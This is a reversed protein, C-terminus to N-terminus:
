ALSKTLFCTQFNQETESADFMFHLNRRQVVVKKCYKEEAKGGKSGPWKLTEATTLASIAQVERGDTHAFVRAEDTDDEINGVPLAVSFGPRATEGVFGAVVGESQLGVKADFGFQYAESTGRSDHLM